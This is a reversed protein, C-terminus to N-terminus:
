HFDMNQTGAKSELDIMQIWVKGKVKKKRRM